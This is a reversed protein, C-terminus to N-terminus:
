PTSTLPVPFVWPGPVGSGMGEGGMTGVTITILPVDAPIAPAIALVGEIRTGHQVAALPAVRYMRGAGDVAIVDLARMFERSRAEPAHCLYHARAGDEYRELSTLAVTTGDISQTQNVAVVGRLTTPAFVLAEPFPEVVLGWEEPPQPPAEPMPQRVLDHIDGGSRHKWIHPHDRFMSLLTRHSLSRGDDVLYLGQHENSRTLAVFAAAGGNAGPLDCADVYHLHTIQWDDVLREVLDGLSGLDYADDFSIGAGEARFVRRSRVGDGSRSLRTPDGTPTSGDARLIRRTFVCGRGASIPSM